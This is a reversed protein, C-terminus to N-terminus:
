SAPLVVIFRAGGLPATDITVDGHHARVIQRVIALGLGSGGADRSRAEDLRVFRDFVAERQDPAIGAGDDDVILWARGADAGTSIDVREHAHRRANDVLNRAVQAVLRADGRVQAADLRGGIQVGPMSAVRAREALAIDDLDLPKAVLAAGEDLRALLLLGEVIGQMRQGEARVVEALERPPAAAPHTLHLEAFQRITALPSRLEHSADSVFRQRARYGDEVRDLMHNMTGALRDIEDGSGRQQIRRDLTTADLGDVERRMREVPALARRVVFWVVVAMVLTALPIAVALIGITAGVAVTVEEISRGVAAVEDDDREVLVLYRDDDIRVEHVGDALDLLGAADEDNTATNSGERVAVLTDDDIQDISEADGDSVTELTADLQDVVQARLTQDLAIVVGIAGLALSLAVVLSALATIRGSISRRRREAM